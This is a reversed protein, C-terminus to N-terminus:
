CGGCRAADATSPVQMPVRLRIPAHAYFHNVVNDVIFRQNPVLIAVNDDTFVTTRRAGIERVTGEIGAVEIRDGIRIPREFMIIVGSIFNSVINQLGFGVGVGVAGAVVSLATLNIGANQLILAFGIVLVTYNVLAGVAQRTGADLPTHRLVRQVTIRRLLGALWFLAAVLLVLKLASSLNFSVGGLTFLRVDLERLRELLAQLDMAGGPEVRRPAGHRRGRM